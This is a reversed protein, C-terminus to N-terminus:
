AVQGGALRIMTRYRDKRRERDAERDRELMQLLELKVREPLKARLIMELEEDIDERTPETPVEAAPKLGAAVLVEDLDVKFLEAIKEPVVPSEPRQRKTEWRWVTAPDVGLREALKARSLGVATRLATIYAAWGARQDAPPNRMRVLYTTSQHM